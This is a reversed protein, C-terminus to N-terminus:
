SYLQKKEGKAPKVALPPSVSLVPNDENISKTFHFNIKIINKCEEYFHPM